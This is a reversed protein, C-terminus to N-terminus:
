PTQELTQVTKELAAELKVLLEDIEQTKIILPPAILVHDGSLGNMPRRPYVILGEEAAHDTLVNHAELKPEFPERTQPNKVLEIAQLLGLGRVEGIIPYRRALEQLASYLIEGMCAAHEVLNEDEITRIIELGVACAMPNGAYTHGHMFGGQDLVTDTIEDRTMIAGLPYYGAGMGKSLAVIDAELNWHEYAFLKGTRGFGTMVEDLILMIRHKRCIEEIIQFYGDPPVLAGTSAGGIPEVVFAAVNEAGLIKITQELERACALGCSPRSLEYHCRYCSPAPIKPSSQLLPRFPNELPSYATIGLAGMTSGHYSPSRSIFLHKSGEGRAWYYQRCLKLASEMAESGGSVYFVKNLHAASIEVLKSALELAPLSEFHTRYAFSVKQIQKSILNLIRKHAYGLNTVVAGSSGDLYKRGETDWLYVGEAHDIIPLTKRRQYFLHDGCPYNEVARNM